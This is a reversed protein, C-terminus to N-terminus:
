NSSRGIKKAIAKYSQVVSVQSSANIWFVATFGLDDEAHRCFELALQTKGCGGM